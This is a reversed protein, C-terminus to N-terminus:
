WKKGQLGGPKAPAGKGKVSTKLFGFHKSFSSKEKSFIVVPSSATDDLHSKDEDGKVGKMKKQNGKTHDSIYSNFENKVFCNEDEHLHPPGSSADSVMSLDEVEEIDDDNFYGGKSRWTKEEDIKNHQDQPADSYQDFYRTWGSECGSSCESNSLNM